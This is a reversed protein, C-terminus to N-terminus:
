KINQARYRFTKRAKKRDFRWDITTRRRNVRRNWAQVESRLTSLDAIRRRGLCQRSLLSIEIEAQNLWSGHVPTYHVTFRKWLRHGLRPGYREVLAKETHTNLNDMVLHITRARPYRAAITSLMAAFQPAKRNATVRTIHNGAKPEIACFINATGRRIYEGDRKAIKGPRMPRPARVEDFLQLTKEDLCVVPESRRYPREYLELVDEMRERYQPTIEGICWSKKGGRDFITTKFYAGFPRM